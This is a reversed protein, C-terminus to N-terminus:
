RYEIDLMFIDKISRVLRKPIELGKLRSDKREVSKWILMKCLDQLSKPQFVLATAYSYIADVAKEPVGDQRAARLCSLIRHYADLADELDM